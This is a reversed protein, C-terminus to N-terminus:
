EKRLRSRYYEEEEIMILESTKNLDIAPDVLKGKVTHLRFPKEPQEPSLNLYGRLADEIVESLTVGRRAADEKANELLPDAISVTTRM